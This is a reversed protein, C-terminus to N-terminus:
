TQVLENGKGKGEERKAEKLEKSGKQWHYNCIERTVREDRDYILRNACGCM